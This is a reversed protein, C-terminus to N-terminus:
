SDSTQALAKQAKQVLDVGRKAFFDNIAKANQNVFTEAIGFFDDDSLGGSGDEEEPQNLIIEVIPREGLPVGLALMIVDNVLDPAAMALRALIRIFVDATGINIGSFGGGAAGAAEALQQVSMSGDAMAKDLASGVIRIFDLRPLASLRRQKYTKSWGEVESGAAGTLTIERVVDTPDVAEILEDVAREQTSKPAKTNTTATKTSPAPKAM